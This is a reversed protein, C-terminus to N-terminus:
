FNIRVKLLVPSPSFFSFESYKLKSRVYFLLIVFLAFGASAMKLIKLLNRVLEIKLCVHCETKLIGHNEHCEHGIDASILIEGFIVPLTVCIALIVILIKAKPAINMAKNYMNLHM